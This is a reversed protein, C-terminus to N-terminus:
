NEYILYCSKKLVMQEQKNKTIKKINRKKFPGCLYQRDCKPQEQSQKLIFLHHYAWKVKIPAQCIAYSISTSGEGFMSTNKTCYVLIM